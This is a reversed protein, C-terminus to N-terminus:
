VVMERDVNWSVSYPIQLSASDVHGTNSLPLEIESRQGKKGLEAGAVRYSYTLEIDQNMIGEELRNPRSEINNRNADSM